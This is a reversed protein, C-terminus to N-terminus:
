IRVRSSFPLFTPPPASYFVTTHLNLDLGKGFNKLPVFSFSRGLWMVSWLLLAQVIKSLLPPHKYSAFDRRCPLPAERTLGAIASVTKGFSLM